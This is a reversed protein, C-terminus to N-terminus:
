QTLGDTIDFEFGPIASAWANSLRPIQRCFQQADLRNTSIWEATDRDAQPQTSCCAKAGAGAMEVRALFLTQAARM